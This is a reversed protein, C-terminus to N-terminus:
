HLLEVDKIYIITLLTFVYAQIFSVAIELIFILCLISIPIITLIYPFNCAYSYGFNAIIKLLTHGSM